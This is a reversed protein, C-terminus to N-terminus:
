GGAGGPRAPQAPPVAGCEPCRDPTARLDYGCKRCVQAMASPSAFRARVFEAIARLLFVCGVVLGGYSLAIHGLVVQKTDHGSSSVRLLLGQNDLISVLFALASYALSWCSKSLHKRRVTQAQSGSHMTSRLM